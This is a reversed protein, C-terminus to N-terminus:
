FQLGLARLEAECQAASSFQIGKIGVKEAGQVNYDMDDIFVTEAAEINNTTLLSRYIEAGPKLSGVEASVTAHEFMPWFSYSEKLHAVIEHVNDTLAYIPYGAQKIRSMLDVTGYILLQTAKVYYFLRDCDAQSWGHAKRYHEGAQEETLLGRNLDRWIESDFITTALLKADITQGFTLKVIEEPAWRVIVNGVDFVVHKISM